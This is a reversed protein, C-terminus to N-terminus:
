LIVNENYFQGMWFTEATWRHKYALDLSILGANPGECVPELPIKRAKNESM